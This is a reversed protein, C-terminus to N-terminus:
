RAYIRFPVLVANDATTGRVADGFYVHGDDSGPTTMGRQTLANSYVSEFSLREGKHAYNYQRVGHDIVDEATEYGKPPTIVYLLENYNSLDVSITQMGFSNQPAPNQWVLTWNFKAIEAAIKQSSWTKNASTTSDDVLAAVDSPTAKGSLESSIKNSSWTKNAAVSGDSILSTLDISSIQTNIKQSSWTSSLSIDGDDIIADSFSLPGNDKWENHTADWIYIDYPSETGVAYVDGATGVPIQSQLDALTDFFGMIIVKTDNEGAGINARAQAKQSTTLGMDSNFVVAGVLTDEIEQASLSSYFYNESM